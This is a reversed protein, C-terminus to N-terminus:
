TLHTLTPEGLPASGEATISGPLFLSLVRLISVGGALGSGLPRLETGASSRSTPLLPNALLRRLTAGEIFPAYGSGQLGSHAGPCVHVGRRALACAGM